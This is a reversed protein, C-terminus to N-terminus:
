DFQSPKRKHQLSSQLCTLIINGKKISKTYFKFGTVNENDNQMFIKWIAMCMISHSKFNCSIFWERQKQFIDSMNWLILPFSTQCRSFKGTHFVRVTEPIFNWNFPVKRFSNIRTTCLWLRNKGAEKISTGQLKNYFSAYFSSCLM